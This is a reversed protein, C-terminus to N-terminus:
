GKLLDFLPKSIWNLGVSLQHQQNPLRYLYIMRRLTQALIGNIQVGNGTITANDVGLTLMEGQNQYRFPLLPRETLSAWINWACYDSQQFAVQATAPVEQGTADQCYAVDGLAFVDPNDVTQLTTNIALKGKEQKLPLNSVLEVVRTGVTWLVLDVPINDTQGKYFLSITESDIQAVTTELDIWVNKSELAQKATERNFEPSCALIMESKEILRIRGREELRDALKCALEVGSYGGGVIAIRIKDAKSHELVRLKEELQYADELTRFPLAYEEAGPVIDLPTTGGLAIVLKDYSIQSNNALKVWQNELDIEMVEGQRFRVGTEALVEEFPPAIEWSQLEGTILEYLLPTFLFRDRKDILLIEPKETTELPLENLRLATYLGGFGGGVICIRKNM